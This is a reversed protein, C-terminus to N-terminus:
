TERKKAYFPYVRAKFDKKIDLDHTLDLMAFMEFDCVSHAEGM